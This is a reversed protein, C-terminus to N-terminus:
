LSPVSVLLTVRLHPLFHCPALACLDLHPAGVAETTHSLSAGARVDERQPPACM